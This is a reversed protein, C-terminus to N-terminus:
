TQPSYLRLGPVQRIHDDLTYVEHDHEIAIAAILLDLLGLTLGRQRMQYALAGSMVWTQRSEAVYPLAAWEDRLDEFENTSRAGQLLEAMVPGVMVLSEKALLSDVEIKELSDAARLAQVWVSTDVVVM